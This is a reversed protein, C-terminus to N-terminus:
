ISCSVPLKILMEKNSFKLNIVSGQLLVGKFPKKRESTLWCNGHYKSASYWLLNEAERMMGSQCRLSVIINNQIVVNRLHKWIWLFSPNVVTLVVKVTQAPQTFYSFFKRYFVNKLQINWWLLVPSSHAFQWPTIWLFSIFLTYGLLSFLKRQNIISAKKM